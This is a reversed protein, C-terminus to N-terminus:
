RKKMKKIVFYCAFFVTFITLVLFTNIMIGSYNIEIHREKKTQGTEEKNSIEHHKKEKAINEKKNIKVLYNEDLYDNENFSTQQKNKYRIANKDRMKSHKTSIKPEIIKVTMIALDGSPEVLFDFKEGNYNVFTSVSGIINFSDNAKLYYGRVQGQCMGDAEAFINDDAIHKNADITLHCNKASKLANSSLDPSIAAYTSVSPYTFLFFCAMLFIIPAKKLKKNM